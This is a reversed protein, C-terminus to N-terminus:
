LKKALWGSRGHKLVYRAKYEILDVPHFSYRLVGEKYTLSLMLSRDKYFSIAEDYKSVLLEQNKKLAVSATLNKLSSMLLEKTTGTPVNFLTHRLKYKYKLEKGKSNYYDPDVKIIAFTGKGLSPTDKSPVAVSLLYDGNDLGEPSMSSGIIEFVQFECIDITDGTETKVLQPLIPLGKVPLLGISPDGAAVRKIGNKNDIATYDIREEGFFWLYFNEFGSIISM